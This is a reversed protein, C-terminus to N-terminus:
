QRRPSRAAQRAAPPVFPSLMERVPLDTDSSANRLDSRQLSPGSGGTGDTGHCWGCQADFIRKGAALETADASSLPRSQASLLQVVLVLLTGLCVSSSRSTKM